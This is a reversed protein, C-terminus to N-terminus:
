KYILFIAPVRPVHRSMEEDTAHAPLLRRWESVSRTTIQEDACTIDAALCLRTQPRLTRLLDAMM